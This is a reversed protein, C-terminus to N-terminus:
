IITGVFLTEGSHHWSLSSVAACKFSRKEKHKVLDYIVVVGDNMDSGGLGFALYKEDKPCIKIDNIIMSQSLGFDRCSLSYDCIRISTELIDLVYLFGETTGIYVFCKESPTDVHICSIYGHKTDIFSPLLLDVVDLTPLDMVIISNDEFAVLVKNPYLAQISLVSNSDDTLWPRMYQFGDGYVYV